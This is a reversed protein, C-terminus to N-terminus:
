SLPVLVPEPELSVPDEVSEDVPLEKDVPAIAPIATLVCILEAGM